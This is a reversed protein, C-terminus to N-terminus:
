RAPGAETPADLRVERNDDLGSASVGYVKLNVLAGAPGTVYGLLLRRGAPVSVGDLWAAAVVGLQSDQALSPPTEATPVLRLQSQRDGVAFTVAVRVLGRKAELYVPIREEGRGAREPSGLTLAGETASPRRLAASTRSAAASSVSNGSSGSACAAWPLAGGMSTRVPRAMDLNNVRFLELILDRIDLSGDGGRTSVTDAPYLDMADWRDSCAAPRFGPVGNVAFLAQILDRIDLTGDGFNPAWDSTYPAIDGVAYTYAVNIAGNPGAALPVGTAGIAGSVGTVVVAYSQGPTPGAPITGTITGVTSTGSLASSLSAWLISIANSTGATTIFPADAISADKTFKLSGTLAPVSGNPTVQIAFTLSDVRVGSILNMTIPISFAGGPGVPASGATLTGLPGVAANVTFSQTVSAAAAYDANGAQSAAISCTGTALLTVTAGSVTCVSTTTSAFSVALGSSATASVSFPAVGFTVNSLAGFTITQSGQTVQFSQSVPAAAAYTGDGPQTAQITCAGVAALAVTAGSVTCVAPTTSAFSVSLGSSATASVTFPATGYAQDSLAGFAITQAVTQTVTIQQGLVAIHAVRPATSTNATFSFSVVGNVITGITLWTQDSTPAYVGSLSQTSPLIPLLSDSGASAAETLSAPGVFAYPIEEIGRSNTIYVNGSGDVAAENAGSSTLTTLQRTSASWEYVAGNNADAIYVDGSGDVAVGGQLYLGSSVLTTVQQTSPSWEKIASNGWDSIYVNGSGDVAVGGPEIGSVLTTVQQTSASREKIANNYSDSIYVNGSGDVAVEGPHNLGSSVLTTVQQTSPIWEKIASNGGDSIYVNGSGDVAVGSPQYVGSSVLTIVQQTSASWEYVANTIDGFTFYVNGSGDVAVGSPSGLAESTTLLTTAPDRGGIYNTGAQTVTATLGAITLTGTRTGTGTFADYTFIVVANGTGSASGASIHLFSDNASATWAGNYTLAVSSSGAASGVLFSSVGAPWAVNGGLPSVVLFSQTVSAAAVYDANGPQSATISCIGVALVTVTAGSVTCASPTTSAFSVALGSSATAGVTFPAAGLLAGSLAAFTITQPAPNVTFSQTVTTAAVYNANGAQSATISCTGLAVITVTNGSVTCVSTTTSAFSVALGSSATASVTLPAAGFTVTSLAGFTITQTAPNVTFGQAVATAAAYNANGAQSATISCAGASVITVRNGSVTCVSTTTSAFSVALGSSATAGVTFPAVGFTVDSIEGFTITQTALNVIFSQIVPTAAAYNADGAQSATISCTGGAVITVTAGSVTCVSTTTSAFSVTLGSSATASVTFPAAGFTVNSLAGFTISQAAAIITSDSATAAASGGGSVSAQNLQPSTATSGVNVTVTIPPYSAGTALADSRTCTNAGSACAWGTGSMSVLTMGNPLTETVTVTGSTAAVSAADSVTVTYTAGNQGQTFNGAHTKVISLAPPGVVAPNMERSFASEYGNTQDTAAGTQSTNYATVAVYATGAPLGSLTFATVNGADVPSPGQAAWTGTYPPGTQAGYYVKYGAVNPEPNPAWSLSVSGAGATAVFNAPPSVPATQNIAGLAPAWTVTGRSGDVGFDHILSQIAASSTTGWWNNQASIQPSTNGDLDELTYPTANNQWNNQSVALNASGGSIAIASGGAAASQNQTITNQSIASANSGNFLAELASYTPATNGTISNQQITSAGKLNLYVGGASVSATNNSVVNNTLTIGGCCDYTDGYTAFIGGGVGAIDYNFGEILGSSNIGTKTNATITNGSILVTGPNRGVFIGGGTRNGSVLNGTISLSGACCTDAIDIGTQNGTITNNAITLAGYDNGALLGAGTNGSIVNGTVSATGYPYAYLKVGTTTNNTVTNGQLQITGAESPTGINQPAAYNADVGTGNSSLTSNSVRLFTFTNNAVSLGAGSNAHVTAHNIFPTASVLRVAYNSGSGGVNAGASDISVYELISGSVYNGSGDFTAGVSGTNFLVYGWQGPAAPWQSSTFTIPSAATGRAILTGNVQLVTSPAFQVATGAEITLTAGTAVLVSGVVQIPSDALRWTTDASITGSVSVAPSIATSDTVSVGQSGGGSVSVQNVQPSTANSAVHVMVTIVPYSLGAALADSRTCTYGGFCTWGAGTMSVLTMGTPVTETVTVTGSTPVATAGNSVTVTYTAGTQGQTFSGTHSKAISLAASIVTFNQTVPTAPAYSANGAQSATISCTGGAVITVTAGSVTCVSTTTSAFSVTLGSSATASVTFPAAGYTQNALAGFTITQPAGVANQTVTIQQGLITIHAVRASSTNATFTLSVVGNTITGITLWTQDSTPAFIGTLPTTSPLVPLLSDSGATAPETLSAPGVFAYPIEKIAADSGNAVIYVDDSGDVAVGLPDPLGSSVLTTVQQTSASWEKIASDSSDAIYVNGSGDVAV